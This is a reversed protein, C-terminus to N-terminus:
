LFFNFMLCECRVRVRGCRGFVRMRFVRLLIGVKRVAECLWSGNLVGILKFFFELYMWISSLFYFNVFKIILKFWKWSVYVFFLFFNNFNIKEEKKIVVVKLVLIFSFMFIIWVFIYFSNRKIYCYLIFRGNRWGCLSWCLKLYINVYIYFKM